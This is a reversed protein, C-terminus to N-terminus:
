VRLSSHLNPVSFLEDADLLEVHFLLVFFMFEVRLTEAINLFWEFEYKCASRDLYKVVVPVGDVFVQFVCNGNGALVDFVEHLEESRRWIVDLNPVGKGAFDLLDEAIDALSFDSSELKIIQFFSEENAWTLSLHADM